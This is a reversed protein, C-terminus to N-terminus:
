TGRPRALPGTPRDGGRATGADVGDSKIARWLMAMLADGGKLYKLMLPKSGDAFILRAAYAGDDEIDRLGALPYTRTGMLYTPLTLHTENVVVAYTCIYTCHWAVFAAVVAVQMVGEGPLLMGPNYQAAAILAGGLFVTLGRVGLPTPMRRAGPADLDVQAAMGLGAIIKAEALNEIRRAAMRDVAGRTARTGFRDNLAKIAWAIGLLIALYVIGSTGGVITM